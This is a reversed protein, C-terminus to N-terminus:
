DEEGRNRPSPSRVFHPPPTRELCRDIIHVLVGELNTRVEEAPIRLTEVGKEHVRQDRRHDRRVTSEFDHALGDVEIALGAAKCYFDLVFPGFPHQKRFKLGEPRLRLVRWLRIETPSMRKRLQRAREVSL